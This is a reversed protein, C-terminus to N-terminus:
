KEGIMKVGSLRVVRGGGDGNVMTAAAKERAEEEEEERKENEREKQLGVAWEYVRPFAGDKYLVIRTGEAERALYGKILGNGFM